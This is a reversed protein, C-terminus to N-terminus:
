EGNKNNVCIIMDNPRLPAHKAGSSVLVAADAPSMPEVDTVLCAGGFDHCCFNFGWSRLALRDRSLQLVRFGGDEQSVHTRSYTMSKTEFPDAVFRKPNPGYIELASEYDEPSFLVFDGDCHDRDGWPNTCPVWKSVSAEDTLTLSPNGGRHTSDQQIPPAKLAPTVPVSTHQSERQEARTVQARRTISHASTEGIISTQRDKDGGNFMAEDDKKRETRPTSASMAVFDVSRTPPSENEMPAKASKSKKSRPAAKSVESSVKRKNTAKKAVNSSTPGPASSRSKKSISAGKGGTSRSEKSKSKSATSKGGSASASASAKEAVLAGSSADRATKSTIQCKFSHLLKPNKKGSEIECICAECGYLAGALLIVLKEKAGSDKFNKHMSCLCHHSRIALSPYKCKRCCPMKPYGYGKRAGGMLARHIEDNSISCKKSSENGDKVLREVVITVPRVQLSKSWEVVEDVGVPKLNKRVEQIVHDLDTKRDPVKPPHYILDGKQVGYCEAQSGSYVNTVCCYTKTKNMNQTQSINMGFRANRPLTIYHLTSPADDDIIGSTEKQSEKGTSPTCTRTSTAGKGKGKGTTTSTRTKGTGAIDMFTETPRENTPIDNGTGAIAIAIGNDNHDPFSIQSLQSMDFMLDTDGVRDM